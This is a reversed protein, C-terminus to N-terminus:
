KGTETQNDGPGFIRSGGLKRVGGLEIYPKNIKKSLMIIFILTSIYM